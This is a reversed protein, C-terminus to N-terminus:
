VGNHIGNQRDSVRGNVQDRYSRLIEQRRPKFQSTLLGNDISFREHAVVLGALQEDRASRANCQALRGTIAARDPPETAPSVVAVLHTQGPCFIVADGIAPSAKLFEELPRVIVKKGNDLVIVDDARGRIFLYGDEDVYGLDGTRVTGDPAFVRESDGPEAYEYRWNVPFDAHISVV